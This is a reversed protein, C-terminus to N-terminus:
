GIMDSRHRDLIKQITSRASDRVVEGSSKRTAKHNVNRISSATLYLNCKEKGCDKGEIQKTETKNLM